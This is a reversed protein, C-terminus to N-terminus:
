PLLKRPKVVYIAAIAVITFFYFYLVNGSVKYAIIGFVINGQPILFFITKTYKPLKPFSYIQEPSLKIIKIFRYFLFYYVIPLEILKYIVLFYVVESRYVEPIYELPTIKFNLDIFFALFASIVVAIFAIKKRKELNQVLEQM